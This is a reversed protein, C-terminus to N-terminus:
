LTTSHGARRRVKFASCNVRPTNSHTATAPPSQHPPASFWSLLRGSPFEPQLLVHAAAAPAHRALAVLDGFDEEREAPVGADLLDHVLDSFLVRADSGRRDIPGHFQQAVRAQDPHPLEPFSERSIFRERRLLVVVVQEAGAAAPDDLEALLRDLRQLLLDRPPVPELHVMM